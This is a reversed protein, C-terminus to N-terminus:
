DNMDFFMLEMVDTPIKQHINAKPTLLYEDKSNRSVWNMSELMHLAVRFHGGNAQLEKVLKTFPLPKAFNLIKFLGHEKCALIIPIAVYGHSYNNLITLM